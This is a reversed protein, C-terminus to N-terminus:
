GSPSCDEPPCSPASGPALRRLGHVLHLGPFLLRWSGEPTNPVHFAPITSCPVPSARRPLLRSGVSLSDSGPMTGISGSSLMVEPAPLGPLRAVRVTGPWRLLARRPQDSWLLPSRAPLSALTRRRFPRISPETSLRILSFRVDPKPLPRRFRLRGPVLSRYTHAGVRFPPFLATM